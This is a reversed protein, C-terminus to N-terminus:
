WADRIGESDHGFHITVPGLYFDHESEAVSELAERETPVCIIGGWDNGVAWMQVPIRKDTVKAGEGM